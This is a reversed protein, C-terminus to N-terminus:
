KSVYSCMHNMDNIHTYKSLFFMQMGLDFLIGEKMIETEDTLYPLNMKINSTSM